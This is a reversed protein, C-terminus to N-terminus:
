FMSQNKSYNMPLRWIPGQHVQLFSVAMKDRLNITGQTPSLVLVIRSPKQSLYQELLGVRMCCYVACYRSSPVPNFSHCRWTCENYQSVSLTGRLLEHGGGRVGGLHNKMLQRWWALSDLRFRTNCETLSFNLLRVSQLLLISLDCNSMERYLLM